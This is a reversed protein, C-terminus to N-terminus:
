YPSSQEIRFILQIDYVTLVSIYSAIVLWERHKITAKWAGPITLIAVINKRRQCPSAPLADICPLRLFVALAFIISWKDVLDDACTWLNNKGKFDRNQCPPICLEQKRICAPDVHQLASLYMRSCILSLQRKVDELEVMQSILSTQFCTSFFSLIAICM